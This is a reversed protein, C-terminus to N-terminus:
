VQTRDLTCTCITADAFTSFAFSIGHLRRDRACITTRATRAADASELIAIAPRVTRLGVDKSHRRMYTIPKHGYSVAEVEIRSDCRSGRPHILLEALRARKKTARGAFAARARDVRSTRSDAGCELRTARHTSLRTM